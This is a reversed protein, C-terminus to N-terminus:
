AHGEGAAYLAHASLSSDHEEHERGFVLNEGRSYHHHILYTPPLRRELRASSSSGTRTTGGIGVIFPKRQTM